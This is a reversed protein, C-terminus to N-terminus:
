HCNWGASRASGAEVTNVQIKNEQNGTNTHKRKGVGSNEETRGWNDPDLQRKGKRWGGGGDGRDVLEVECQQLKVWLLENLRKSGCLHKECSWIPLEAKIHVLYVKKSLIKHLKQWKRYRSFKIKSQRCNWRTMHKHWQTSHNVSKIDHKSM